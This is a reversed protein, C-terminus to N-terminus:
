SPSAENTGAPGTQQDKAASRPGLRADMAAHDTPLAPLVVKFATGQGMSGPWKFAAPGQACHLAHSQIGNHHFLARDRKLGLGM